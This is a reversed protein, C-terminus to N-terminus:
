QRAGNSIRRGTARELLKLLTRENFLLGFSAGVSYAISSLLPLTAFGYGLCGGGICDSKRLPFFTLEKMETWTIWHLGSYSIYGTLLIFWLLGGVWVLVAARHHRNRNLLFGLLLCPFWGIPSYWLFGTTSSNILLASLLWGLMGMLSHLVFHGMGLIMGHVFFPLQKM